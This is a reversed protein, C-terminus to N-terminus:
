ACRVAVLRRDFFPPRVVLPAAQDASGLAAHVGFQMGNGIGVAARDPEEHSCALDAVVGTSGGQQVTQWLRFPQQGAPSQRRM